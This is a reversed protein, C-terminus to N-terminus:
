NGSMTAREVVAAEAETLRIATGHRQGAPMRLKETMDEFHKWDSTELVGYHQPQTYHDFYILWKKGVTLVTPGEM